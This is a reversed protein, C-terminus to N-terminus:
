YLRELKFSTDGVAIAFSGGVRPPSQLHTSMSWLPHGPENSINQRAAHSHTLQFLDAKASPWQVRQYVAQGHMLTPGTLTLRYRKPKRPM